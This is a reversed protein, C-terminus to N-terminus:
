GAGVLKKAARISSESCGAKLVVFMREGDRDSLVLWGGDGVFCQMRVAYTFSIGDRWEPASQLKVFYGEETDSDDFEVWHTGEDLDLLWWRKTGFTSLFNLFDPFFGRAHIDNDGSFIILKQDMLLISSIDRSDGWERSLIVYPNMSAEERPSVANQLWPAMVTLMQM